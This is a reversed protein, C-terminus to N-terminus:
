NQKEPFMDKLAVSISNQELVLICPKPKIAFSLDDKACLSPHSKMKRQETLKVAILRLCAVSLLNFFIYWKYFCNNNCDIKKKICIM